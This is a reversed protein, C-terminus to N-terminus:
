NNLEYPELNKAVDLWAFKTAESIGELGPFLKKATMGVIVLQKVIKYYDDNKNEFVFEVWPSKYVLLKNTTPLNESLWEEVDLDIKSPVMFLGDQAEQRPNLLSGDIFGVFDIESAKAGIGYEDLSPNLPVTKGKYKKLKGRAERSCQRVTDLHLSHISFPGSNPKAERIAFFLAAAPNFTFDLLRTPSGYHQMLALWQLRDTKAPIHALHIHASGSFRNLLAKERPYWSSTKLINGRHDKLFRHLSSQLKWDDVHGPDVNYKSHGRYIWNRQSMKEVKQFFDFACTCKVIKPSM